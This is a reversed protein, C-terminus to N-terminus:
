SSWTALGQSIWHGIWEMVQPEDHGLQRLRNLVSVNHLPHVDCGIVAAVARERARAALDQSLLPAQPYREELYEIIAPSQILLEGDDTRLAPVRGQPNIALYAPQRQRRGGARDPQGAAGPLGPGQAGIRHAGSVVLDFPLLHLAAHGAGEAHRLVKGRCEGFGISAFGERSCRGRLIIEDGDELFKRVEGSALEIPKKGGETIELLSGFQGNEPGSLTGSGFLDGAQLQCGNVSHHAVMQAVTWYMHPHQEPDPSPGAPEARAHSRDAAGGTRHRLARPRIASTSCTRCRSRIAKRARRSPRRFPELAEATVVWPSISTIFSKSLFPGLPQYEWAQIDRASWDNLLCFGAIHEAADGIAIPRGHRQGPRDLHGAGARLGPARVPRFDTREPRCPRAKRAACTPAPPAFPRPAATTVSRCTSTTPCCRTTPRFLKGVNQAHEIGVYFDTYDNIKAPLHMQCDAARTKRGPSRDQWRVARALLELLRERLAVRAVASNSSPM